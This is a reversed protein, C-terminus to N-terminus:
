SSSLKELILQNSPQTQHRGEIVKSPDISSTPAKSVGRATPPLRLHFFESVSTPRPPKVTAKMGDVATKPTAKMKSLKEAGDTPPTQTKGYRVAAPLHSPRKIDYKAALKDHLAKQKLISKPSRTPKKPFINNYWRNPQQAKPRWRFDPVQKEPLALAYGTTRSGWPSKLGM